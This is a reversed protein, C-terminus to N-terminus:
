FDALSMYVCTGEAVAIVFQLDDAEFAVVTITNAFFFSSAPLFFVATVKLLAGYVM